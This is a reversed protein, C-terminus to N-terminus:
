SYSDAPAIVFDIGVCAPYATIQTPLSFGRQDIRAHLTFRCFFIVFFPSAFTSGVCAPLGSISTLSEPRVATSGRAHPTFPSLDIFIFITCPRDGRMRPYVSNDRRGASLTAPRDGACAPLYVRIRYVASRPVVTSGRAHPTFM